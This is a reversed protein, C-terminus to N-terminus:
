LQIRPRAKNGQRPFSARRPLSSLMICGNNRKWWWTEEGQEAVLSTLSIAELEDRGERGMFYFCCTYIYIYISCSRLIEFSSRPYLRLIRERQNFLARSVNLLGKEM